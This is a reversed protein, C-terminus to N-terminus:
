PGWGGKEQKKKRNIKGGSKKGNGNWTERKGVNESTASEERTRSLATPAFITDITLRPFSQVLWFDSHVYKRM